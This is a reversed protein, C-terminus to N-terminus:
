LLAGVRSTKKPAILGRFNVNPAILGRFYLNPAIDGNKLVHCAVDDKNKWSMMVGWGDRERERVGRDREGWRREKAVESLRGKGGWLRGLAKFFQFFKSFFSFRLFHLPSSRIFLLSFIYDKNIIWIFILAKSLSLSLLLTKTTVSFLLALSSSPYIDFRPSCILADGGM